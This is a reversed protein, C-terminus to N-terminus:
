FIYNNSRNNDESSTSPPRSSVQHPPVGEMGFGDSAAGGSSRSSALRQHQLSIDDPSNTNLSLMYQQNQHQQYLQQQHHPQQQQVQYQVHFGSPGMGGPRSVGAQGPGGLGFNFSLMGPGPGSGFPASPGGTFQQVLARFNTTDTNMVTTPTRRSARSRRRAPKAVGGEPSLHSSPGLNSLTAAHGPAAVPIAATASASAGAAGDSRSRDSSIAESAAARGSPAVQSLFDQQYFQMWENPSNSMTKSMALFM